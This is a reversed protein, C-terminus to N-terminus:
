NIPSPGLRAKHELLGHVADRRRQGTVLRSECNPLCDAATIM